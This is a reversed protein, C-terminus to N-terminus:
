ALSNPCLLVLPPNPPKEVPVFEVTSWCIKIKSLNILIQKQNETPQVFHLKAVAQLGYRLNRKNGFFFRLKSVVRILTATREKQGFAKIELTKPM